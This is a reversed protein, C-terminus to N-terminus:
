TAGASVISYPDSALLVDPGAMEIPVEDAPLVAAVEICTGGVLAGAADLESLATVGGTGM